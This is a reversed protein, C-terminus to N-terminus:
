AFERKKLRRQKFDNSSQAELQKELKERRELEPMKLVMGITLWYYVAVPDVDLPYYYTQYSIFLIFVWFSAGYSRLNRDKVSRYAKFTAYTLTTVLALFALVGLPGIEYLLKPYYTEVLQTKGLSRASNTARGLGRGLFGKQRALSWQLQEQIFLHPPSAEWRSQLSDFREQAIEPNSILTIGLILALGVGIPLFRKLNVLQGTLILLIVFFVPVLALAIRQGSVVAMIFVCAMSSLGLQRWIVSPDSFATAFSFFSSSILFWGWQWPAVFTGPLRIQGHEPSYLLSGGVFCKAKLSAKFLDDGVAGRSEWAALIPPLIRDRAEGPLPELFWYILSGDIMALTPPGSSLSPFHPSNLAVQERSAEVAKIENALQTENALEALVAVEAITRRYGMWEETRIGWQRSVYLDEPRYFVEPLSDLLPHRSQGYHLVIRGVNILYCYAIEHHSPAIQSGDTALVTHANPAATLDVRTNLPEIPQAATFTLRDRWQQQLAVLHEQRQGAHVLLNQARELRKRAAASEQTLHQSIGQMQQALKILDLM